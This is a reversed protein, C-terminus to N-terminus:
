IESLHKQNLDAYLGHGKELVVPSRNYTHLVYANDRKIVKESDM